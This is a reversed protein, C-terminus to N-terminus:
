EFRYELLVNMPFVDYYSLIASFDGCCYCVFTIDTGLWALFL